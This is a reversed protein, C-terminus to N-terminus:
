VVGVLLMDPSYGYAQLHRDDLHVEWRPVGDDRHQPEPVVVVVLDRHVEESMGNQEAGGEVFGLLPPSDHRAVEGVLSGEHQDHADRIEM